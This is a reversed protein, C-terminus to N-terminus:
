SHYAFYDGSASCWVGSTDIANEVKAWEERMWEQIARREKKLRREEEECRDLQLMFKIGQRVNDDGLWRPIPGSNEDDLGVDQWINDDVDLQFLGDRQIKLPAIAGVPARRKRILTTLQDCLDNYTKALSVIGPEKRKIQDEVHKQLKM